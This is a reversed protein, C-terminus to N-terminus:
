CGAIGAPWGRGALAALDARTDIDRVCGADDTAVSVVGDLGALLSRAGRDGNLGALAAFLRCSVAVPHGPEGHCLPLAAPAGDLVYALLRDALAPSVLPMDGLLLLAARTGAPLAAIGCRLSAAIGEGWDGCRVVRLREGALPALLAAVEAGRAGVVVTVGEVRSALAAEVAWCVLPRSRFRALLKGGGFRRGAGAALVIAQTGAARADGSPPPM